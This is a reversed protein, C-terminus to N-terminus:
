GSACREVLAPTLLRDCGARAAAAPSCSRSSNPCWNSRGGVCTASGQWRSGNKRFVVRKRTLLRRTLARTDPLTVGPDVRISSVLRARHARGATCGRSETSSRLALSGGGGPMNIWILVWPGRDSFSIARVVNQREHRCGSGNGDLPQRGAALVRRHIGRQVVAQAPHISLIFGPLGPPWPPYSIVMVNLAKPRAVSPHRALM